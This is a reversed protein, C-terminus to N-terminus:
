LYQHQVTRRGRARGKYTMSQFRLDHKLVASLDFHGAEHLMMVAFSTIPKTMSAIAFIADNTMARGGERDRAGFSEFFQIEGASALLGVAGVIQENEIDARIQESVRALGSETFAATASPM